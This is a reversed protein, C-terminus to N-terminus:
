RRKQQQRLKIDDKMRRGHLNWWSLAFALGVISCPIDIFIFKVVSM